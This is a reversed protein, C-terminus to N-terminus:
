SRSRPTLKRFDITFDGAKVQERLRKDVYLTLHVHKMDIILTELERSWEGSPRALEAKNMQIDRVIEDAHEAARAERREREEDVGPEVHSNDRTRHPGPLPTSNKFSTNILVRM